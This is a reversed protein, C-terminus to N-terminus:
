SARLIAEIDFAQSSSELLVGSSDKGSTDQAFVSVWAGLRNLNSIASESDADTGHM